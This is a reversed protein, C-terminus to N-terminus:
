RSSGPSPVTGTVVDADGVNELNRIIAGIPDQTGPPVVEIPREPLSDLSDFQVAEVPKLTLHRQVLLQIRDPSNLTAWEARLAAIADRERRIQLRLEAVREAQRTSNYKIEYVRAAAFVLAGIVVLNLLRLM